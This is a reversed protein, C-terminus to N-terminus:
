WGDRVNRHALVPRLFGNHHLYFLMRSSVAKPEPVLALCATMASFFAPIHATMDRQFSSIPSLVARLNLGTAVAVTVMTDFEGVVPGELLAKSLSWM